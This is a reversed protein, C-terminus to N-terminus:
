RLFVISNSVRLPTPFNLRLFVIICNRFAPTTIFEADTLSYSFAREFAKSVKIIQRNSGESGFYITAGIAVAGLNWAEEVSGFM